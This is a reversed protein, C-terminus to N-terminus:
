SVQESRSLSQVRSRWWIRSLGRRSGFQPALQDAVLNALKEEPWAEHAADSTLYDRPKPVSRLARDLLPSGNVQVHALEHLLLWTLSQPTETHDSLLVVRRGRTYARFAYYGPFPKGGMDRAWLRRVLRRPILEVFVHTDLYSQGALSSWVQAPIQVAPQGHSIVTIPGFSLRTRSVGLSM